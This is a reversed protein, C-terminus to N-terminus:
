AAFPALAALLDSCEETHIVLEVTRDKALALVGEISKADVVRSGCKIDAEYDYHNLIRVFDIIQDAHDFKVMLHKMFIAEMNIHKQMGSEIM